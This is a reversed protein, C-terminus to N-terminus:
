FTVSSMTATEDVASRGKGIKSSEIMGSSTFLCSVICVSKLYSATALMFATVSKIVALNAEKDV